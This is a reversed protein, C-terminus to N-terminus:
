VGYNCFTNLIDSYSERQFGISPSICYWLHNPQIKSWYTDLTYDVCPKESLLKSSEYLNKLLIPAFERTIIYSSACITKQVRKLFDFETNNVIYNNIPDYINNYSLQIIDFLIKTDFVKQVDSWFTEKDKYTFDDELVLCTKHESQLFTELTLIHSKTCGLAGLGRVYVANIRHIKEPPVNLDTMTQLFLDNREKRYELNIYYICDINNMSLNEINYKKIDNYNKLNNNLSNYINIIFSM